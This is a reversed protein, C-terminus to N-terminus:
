RTIDMQLIIDISETETATSQADTKATFDPPNPALEHKYAAIVNAIAQQRRTQDATITQISNGLGPANWRGTDPDLFSRTRAWLIAEEEQLGMIKAKSLWNIYGRDLAALPAQNALDLGNLLEKSTLAIDKEFALYHLIKAQQTLQDLQKQDAEEPSNAGHQYSFTGQNWAQNGPDLHGYYALTKRGDVTRTGEAHGIALAVISNEGDAFLQAIEPVLPPNPLPSISTTIQPIPVSPVPLQESAALMPNPVAHDRHAPSPHVTTTADAIAPPIFTLTHDVTATAAPGSEAPDPAITERAILEVELLIDAAYGSNGWGLLVFSPGGIFFCQWVKMTRFNLQTRRDCEM